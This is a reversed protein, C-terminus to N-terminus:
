EETPGSRWQMRRTQDGDKFLIVDEGSDVHKTITVLRREPRDLNTNVFQEAVGADDFVVINLNDYADYELRLTQAMELLASGKPPPFVYGVLGKLSRVEVM